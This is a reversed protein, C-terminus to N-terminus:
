LGLEKWIRDVQAKVENDMELADPWERNFGEDPGKRTADIGMKSGLNPHPSAHDLTDTPARDIIVIDRAPDIRTTTAWLVEGMDQVNVDDDLVIVTKAFMMQGMGWLAFMVKKAHGPYRKKISVICLNHFVAEVPLNIDAIEPLQMKMLPLFIRETAKGLYADEMPPKGVITAHYIPDRRHTICTIHFVPFEDALSYYGTHDGFPGEVRRESSAVYGELVIEAHAPVYLDVTECKVLEVNKRRLFGAFMMEDINDPLPATASYVVAPDAGIAVAVEIKGDKGADAYDRAGHKHIHWHMGTTRGDYVQMRYMGVNQKGTKPNKTFVLPLTIFRGGDGPWCKLVPFKELSFDEKLIVEKCPGSKVYKPAFSALEGLRPLMKIGNWISSPAELELLKQIREGIENLDNVGLALNMREMTGFANAFIPINYGEVNEFLLAPGSSKVVRDLIETIELEASVETKIRRLMGKKELLEIFERLDRYAM